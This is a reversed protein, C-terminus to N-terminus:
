GPLKAFCNEACGIFCNTRWKLASGLANPLSLVSFPGSLYLTKLAIDELISERVGVESVSQPRQMPGLSPRAKLFDQTNLFLEM